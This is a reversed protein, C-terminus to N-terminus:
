VRQARLVHYGGSRALVSCNGCLAALKVRASKAGQKKQVVVFLAGGRSLHEVSQEFLSYVLRKGARLPPNTVIASFQGKLQAFGDSEVVRANAIGNRRINERALTLARRNVDVLTVRAAANLKALAIGIAGYGCGLDLLDGTLPPLSRILLDSGFDVRRRSFVGRDTVFVLEGEALRYRILQRVSPSHPQQVYYHDTM